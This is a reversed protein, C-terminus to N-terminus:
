HIFMILCQRANAMEKRNCNKGWKGWKQYKRKSKKNRVSWLLNNKQPDVDRSRNKFRRCRQTYYGQIKECFPFSAATNDQAHSSKDAELNKNGLLSKCAYFCRTLSNIPSTSHHYPNSMFYNLIRERTESIGHNHSLATQTSANRSTGSWRPCGTGARNGEGGEQSRGRLRAGSGGLSQCVVAWLYTSASLRGRLCRPILSLTNPLAPATSLSSFTLKWLLSTHTATIKKKKPHIFM